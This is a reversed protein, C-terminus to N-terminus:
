NLHHKQKKMVASQMVNSCPFIGLFSAAISRMVVRQLAIVNIVKGWWRNGDPIASLVLLLIMGRSKSHATYVWHGQMCPEINYMGQKNVFCNAAMM